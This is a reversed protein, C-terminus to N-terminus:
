KGTITTAFNQHLEPIDKWMEGLMAAGGFGYKELQPIRQRTIGGLAVVKHDIIGQASARRLAEDNFASHYGQKSISDYIPSLFVYDMKPKREIVEELSHCSCSLSGHHDAPVTNNRRNLHIGHLHFENCLEFHDHVVIRQLLRKNVAELLQRCEDIQSDPKRLHLLDIGNEFLRNIASAENQFFHPLTIAITKM